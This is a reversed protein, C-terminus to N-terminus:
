PQHQRIFDRVAAFTPSDPHLLDVLISTHNQGSAMLTRHPSGADALAATMRQAQKHMYPWHEEYIVLFPPAHPGLHVIPSADDLHEAAFPLLTGPKRRALIPSEDPRNQASAADAAGWFAELSGADSTLWKELGRLDYLASMSIVGRVGARAEDDLRDSHLALLSALHGGASHGALFISQPDYGYDDARSRLFDFARHVDDLHGPHQVRPSLRYNINAVAVGEAAHRRAIRGYLGMLDDKSGIQWGGGHVWILLPPRTASDRPPLFLDLSHRGADRPEDHHYRINRRRTVGDDFTTVTPALPDDFREAGDMLLRLHAASLKRM